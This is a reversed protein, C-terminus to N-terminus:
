WWREFVLREADVGLAKLGAETEDVFSPAGCFYYSAQEELGYESQLVNLIRGQTGSWGPKPRSLMFTSELRPHERALNMLEERFLFEVPDNVAYILTQSVDPHIECVHAIIGMIPTVGIGVALHFLRKGHAPSYYFTGQGQSIRVTDGRCAQHRLWHTAPHSRGEKVAIRIRGPTSPTSTISYGGVGEPTFLDIWQGPQYYFHQGGYELWFVTVSPTAPLISVIRAEVGNVPM